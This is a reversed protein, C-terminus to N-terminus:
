EELHIKPRTKGAETNTRVRVSLVCNLYSVTSLSSRETASSSFPSSPPLREINGNIEISAFLLLARLRSAEAAATCPTSAFVM